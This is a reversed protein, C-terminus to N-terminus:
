ILSAGISYVSSVGGSQTVAINWYAPMHDKAVNTTATYEPGVKLVTVGSANITASTLIAYDKSSVNDHGNITVVLNPSGSSIDIVLHLADNDDYSHFNPTQVSVTRAASDLVKLYKAM